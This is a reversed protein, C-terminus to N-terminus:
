LRRYTQQREIAIYKEIIKDYTGNYKACRLKLINNAHSSYWWAGSRKLRVHGIFKNASEIAGSGIHYGGRKAKGYNIGDEHNLLYAILGELKKKAESSAPEISRLDAIVNDFDNNFLRTLNSEVCARAEESSKGFQANAAEHLHESCHYFDLVIKANPFIESTRNWIWPAGDGIICLRVDNEPILGANKMTLLAEALEKDSQVQHWSILHIIQKGDILYLRVGKVEKWEGKGRKGKRCSPEPRTPAHAGDIAVMMVPRRFRGQAIENIKQDIEDKAPCIDLVDLHAAIKNTTEHMHGASISDGTAREYAEEATNFPLESSLWAELDQIDYQKPSPALGLAEDLPYFGKKCNTCYFYPRTLEFNGGLSEVKRKAKKSWCKAKEGCNPCDCHDQEFLHGYNSKIFALILQGLIESKNNFVARTFDEIKEMVNEKLILDIKLNLFKFFDDRWANNLNGIPFIKAGQILM